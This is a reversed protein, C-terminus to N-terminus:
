HRYDSLSGHLLLLLDGTGSEVYAMDYDNVRRTAVM